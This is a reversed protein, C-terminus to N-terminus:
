QKKKVVEAKASNFTPELHAHGPQGQMGVAPDKRGTKRQEQFVGACVARRM